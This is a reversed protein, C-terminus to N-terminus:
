NPVEVRLSGTRTAPDIAPDVYAVRGDLRLGAAAESTVRAPQGVQVRALDSEFASAVVWVRDLRSVVFMATETGVTQGANTERKTIIGTAPSRVTVAARVDEATALRGIEENSMGLVRMM